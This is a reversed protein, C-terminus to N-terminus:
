FPAGSTEAEDIWKQVTKEAAAPLPAPFNAAEMRAEIQKRVSEHLDALRDAVAGGSRQPNTETKEVLEAVAPQARVSSSADLARLNPPPPPLALSIDRGSELAVMQRVSANVELVPVVFKKTKEGVVRKERHEMRLTAPIIIDRDRAAKLFEATGGLEDAANEGTSQVLWVGLDQIDPLMVNLRTIPKCANGKKAQERRVDLDAPCVCPNGDITNTFGDCRHSCGAATWTEYWQSIVADGPPVVVPLETVQTIVEYTRVGNRLETPNVRGGLVEAVSMAVLGSRTTFRFTDLKEPVKKGSKATVTIGLRIEGIQRGKRQRDLLAM